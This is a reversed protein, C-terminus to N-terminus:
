RMSAVFTFSNKGAPMMFNMIDFHRKNDSFICYINTEFSIYNKRHM